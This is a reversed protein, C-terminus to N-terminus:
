TSKSSRTIATPANTILDDRSPNELGIGPYIMGFGITGLFGDGAVLELPPRKTM